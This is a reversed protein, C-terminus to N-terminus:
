KNTGTKPAEVAGLAKSSNVCKLRDCKPVSRLCHEHILSEAAGTRDKEIVRNEWQTSHPSASQRFSIVHSHECFYVVRTAQVSVNDVRSKCVSM